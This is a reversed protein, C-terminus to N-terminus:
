TKTTKMISNECMYMVYKIISVRGDNEGKGRRRRAPEGSCDGKQLWTNNNNNHRSQADLSIMHYKIKQAQSKESLRVELEIWKGALLIMESKKIASYYDLTYIRWMEKTWEDTWDIGL